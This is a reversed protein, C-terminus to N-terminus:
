GTHKKFRVTVVPDYANQYKDSVAITEGKMLQTVALDSLLEVDNKIDLELTELEQFESALDEKTSFEIKRKKERLEKLEETISVYQTSAKLADKYLARLEKQKKKHEQIRDFIDQINQM